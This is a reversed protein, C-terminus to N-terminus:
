GSARISPAPITCRSFPRIRKGLTFKMQFGGQSGVTSSVSLETLADIVSASVPKANFGGMMLTLYFGRNM